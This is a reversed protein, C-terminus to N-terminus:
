SSSIRRGSREAPSYSGVMIIQPFGIRNGKIAFRSLIVNNVMDAADMASCSHGVLHRGESALEFLGEVVRKALGAAAAVFIRRQLVKQDREDVVLM